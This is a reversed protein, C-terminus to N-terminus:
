EDHTERPEYSAWAITQRAHEVTVQMYERESDPLESEYRNLLLGLDNVLRQMDALMDHKTPFKM